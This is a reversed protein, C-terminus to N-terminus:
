LTDLWNKLEEREKQEEARNQQRIAMDLTKGTAQQNVHMIARFGRNMVATEKVPKELAGDAFGERIADEQTMFTEEDMMRAITERDKGCKEAYLNLVADKLKDLYAKAREMERHDGYACTSPNHIMLLAGPGMRVEDCGCPILSAASAALSTIICRTKGRHQRLLTAMAVGAAADGGPSNVYVDLDAGNLAELERRFADPAAVQGDELWWPTEPWIEGEVDLRAAAGAEMRTFRWFDPM